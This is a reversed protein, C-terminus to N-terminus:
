RGDRLVIRRIIYFVARVLIKIMQDRAANTASGNTGLMFARVTALVGNIKPVSLEDDAAIDLITEAFAIKAAREQRIAVLDPNLFPDVAM